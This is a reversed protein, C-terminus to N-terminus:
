ELMVEEETTFHVQIYDVLGVLVRQISMHGRKVMMADSLENILGVLRRHQM